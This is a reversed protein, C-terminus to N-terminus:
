CITILAERLKLEVASWLLKTSVPRFARGPTLWARPTPQAIPVAILKTAGTTAGAAPATQRADFTVPTALVKIPGLFYFYPLKHTM